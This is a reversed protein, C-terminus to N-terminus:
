RSPPPRGDRRSRPRLRPRRRTTACAARPGRRAGCGRDARGGPLRTASSGRAPSALRGSSRWGRSRAGAARTTPWARPTRGPARVRLGARSSGARCTPRAPRSSPPSRPHPPECPDASRLRPSRPRAPITRSRATRRRPRSASRSPPRRPTRNGPAPCGSGTRQTAPARPRGPCRGRYRRWRM